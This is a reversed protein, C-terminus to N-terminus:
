VSRCLIGDGPSILVVGVVQTQMDRNGIQVIDFAPVDTIQQWVQHGADEGQIRSAAADHEIRIMAVYQGALETLAAAAGKEALM